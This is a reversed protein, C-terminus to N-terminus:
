IRNRAVLVAASPVCHGHDLDTVGVDKATTRQTTEDHKSHPHSISFQVPKFSSVHTVAFM